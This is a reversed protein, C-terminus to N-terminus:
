KINLDKQFDIISKFEKTKNTDIKTKATTQKNKLQLTTKGYPNTTKSNGFYTFQGCSGTRNVAITWLQNDLARASTATEWAPKFPNPWNSPILILDANKKQLKRTIEPFIADYCIILGIKGYKTKIVPPEKNGPTIVKKEDIFLHTKRYKTLTGNPQIYISTNYLKEQHKEIYSGCIHTNHKKALKTLKKSTEGPIPEALNKFQKPVSGTTFYEPLCVIDIDGLDGVLKKVTEINKLKKGTKIDMQILGVTIEM